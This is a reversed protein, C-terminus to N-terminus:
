EADPNHQPRWLNDSVKSEMFLKFQEPTIGSGATLDELLEEKSQESQEFSPEGFVGSNDDIFFIRCIGGELTEVFGWNQQNV